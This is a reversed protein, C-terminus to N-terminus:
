SGAPKFADGLRSRSAGPRGADSEAVLRFEPRLTFEPRSGALKALGARDGEGASHSGNAPGPRGDFRQGYREKRAALAANQEAQLEPNKLKLGNALAVQLCQKKFEADGKINIFGFKQQALQMAALISADDHSHVYITRGTDCFARHGSADFYDVHPGHAQAHFSRIDSVVPQKYAQGSIEANTVDLRYRWDEGAQESVEAKLWEEFAPFSKFKARLAARDARALDKLDAKEAAHKAALMSRAANLGAGKGSWSGQLKEARELKQRALLETYRSDIAAKTIATEGAKAAFHERRTKAYDHWSAPAGPMPQIHLDQVKDPDALVQVTSAQYEGLKKQLAGFAAKRDVSSAKVVTEGVHIVAGSGQREYRMGVEALKEHLEAWSTCGSIIPMAAEIGVRQASKQGTRVEMDLRSKDLAKRDPKDGLKILNGDADTSYRTGATHKWGQAYDILAAIQQVAEKYFGKNIELCKESEPNVRNLVMHLHINKTDQHVAWICQHSSMGFQKLAIRVMEKAQERTPKEGEELSIMLHFIPDKSRKSRSALAIMEKMQSRESNFAFNESGSFLVKDDQHDKSLAGELHLIYSVLATVRARAGDSKRAPIAVGISM